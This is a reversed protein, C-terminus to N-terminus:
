LALFCVIKVMKTWIFKFPSHAVPPFTSVINQDRTTPPANALYWQCRCKPDHEVFIVTNISPDKQDYSLHFRQM